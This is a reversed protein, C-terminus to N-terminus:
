IPSARYPTIKAVTAYRRGVNNKKKCGGGDYMCMNSIYVFAMRGNYICCINQMFPTYRDIKNEDEPFAIGNQIYEDM